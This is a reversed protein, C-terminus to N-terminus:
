SSSFFFLFTVYYNKKFPKRHCNLSNSKSPDFSSYISASFGLKTSETIVYFYLYWYQYLLHTKVIFVLADAPHSLLQLRSGSPRFADRPSAHHYFPLVSDVVNGKSRWREHGCSLTHAYMHVCVCVCVCVVCVVCVCVCLYYLWSIDYWQTEVKLLVCVNTNWPYYNSEILIDRYQNYVSRYVKIISAWCLILM